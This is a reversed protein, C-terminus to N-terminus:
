CRSAPKQPQHRVCPLLIQMRTKSNTFPMMLTRPSSASFVSLVFFPRIIQISICFTSLSRAFLLHRSQFLSSSVFGLSFLFPIVSRGPLFANNVPAPVRRCVGRWILDCRVLFKCVMYLLQVFFNGSCQCSGSGSFRDVSEFGRPKPVSYEASTAAVLAANDLIFVSFVATVDTRDPESFSRTAFHALIM